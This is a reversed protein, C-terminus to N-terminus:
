EYYEKSDLLSQYLKKINSILKKIDYKELAIQRGKKGMEKRVEPNDLLFNIAKAMGDIDLSNVLIGTEQHVVVDPVGGVRTAVVPKSSAMAEIISVPTGENLSSVVVIDLSSYIQPLDSRWGTFIVNEEIGLSKVYEILEERLEGDGVVVFQAKPFSELVKRAADFFLKHNKVPTLRGIIGIFPVQPSINLEDRFQDEGSKLFKELEFGLPIVAIKKAPAINFSVLEKKIGKSVTVVKDTFCSLFKEILIFVKTKFPNFYSHFVHGHFTHLIIPVGALKAALRGLVGAKATHTHVIQPKEKKILHYLKFFTIFDRLFNIERGLQPILIPKVKKEKMLELMNGEYPAEVGSVLVSKFKENLRETLLVVHIAPGGINLRTIIRIVKIKDMM